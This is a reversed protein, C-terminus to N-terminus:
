HHHEQHDSSTTPESENTRAPATKAPGHMHMEHAASDSGIGIDDNAQRWAVMPAQADFRRYGAFISQYEVTAPPEAATVTASNVLVLSAAALAARRGHATVWQMSMNDASSM